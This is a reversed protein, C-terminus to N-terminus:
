CYKPTDNRRTTRGGFILKPQTYFKLTFFLFHTKRKQTAMALSSSFLSSPLFFKKVTQFQRKKHTTPRRDYFRRRWIDDGDHCVGTCFLQSITPIKQIHKHSIRPARVGIFNGSETLSITKRQTFATSPMFQVLFHYSRQHYLLFEWRFCTLYWRFRCWILRLLKHKHGICMLVSCCCFAFSRVVSFHHCWISVHLLLLHLHFVVM